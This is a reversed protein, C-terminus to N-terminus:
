DESGSIIISGDPSFNVSNVSNNHGIIMIYLFFNISITFGELTKIYEFTESDWITITKDESASM